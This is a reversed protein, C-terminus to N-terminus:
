VAGVITPALSNLVKQRMESYARPGITGTRFLGMLSGLSSGYKMFYIAERRRQWSVKTDRADPIPVNLLARAALTDRVLEELWQIAQEETEIRPPLEPETGIM